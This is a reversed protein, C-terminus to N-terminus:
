ALAGRRDLATLSACRPGRACLAPAAATSYPTLSDCWCVLSRSTLCPVYSPKFRSLIQFRVHLSRSVLAGLSLSAKEFCHPLRYIPWASKLEAKVSSHSFADFATGQHQRWCERSGEGAVPGTRITMFYLHSCKTRPNIAHFGM